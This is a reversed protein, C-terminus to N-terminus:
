DTYLKRNNRRKENSLSLINVERTVDQKLDLKNIIGYHSINKVHDNLPGTPLQRPFVIVVISGQM